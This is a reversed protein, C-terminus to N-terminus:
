SAITRFWRTPQGFGLYSIQTSKSHPLREVECQSESFSVVSASLTSVQSSSNWRCHDVIYEAEPRIGPIITNSKGWYNYSVTDRGDTGADRVLQLLFYFSCPSILQLATRLNVDFAFEVM